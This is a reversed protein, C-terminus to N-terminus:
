KMTAVVISWHDATCAVNRSRDHGDSIAASSAATAESHVVIIAQRAITPLMSWGSRTRSAAGIMSTPESPLYQRTGHPRIDHLHLEAAAGPTDREFTNM